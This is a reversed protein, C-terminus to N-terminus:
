KACLLMYVQAQRFRPLVSTAGLTAGRRAHGMREASRPSATVINDGPTAQGPRSARRRVARTRPSQTTKSWDLSPVAAIYGVGKSSSCYLDELTNPPQSDMRIRATKLDSVVVAARLSRATGQASRALWRTGGSLGRRLWGHVEHVVEVLVSHTDVRELCAGQGHGLFIPTVAGLALAAGGAGRVHASPPEWHCASQTQAGQHAAQGRENTGSVGQDDGSALTESVGSEQRASAAARKEGSSLNELCRSMQLFRKPRSGM